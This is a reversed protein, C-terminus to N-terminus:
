ELLPAMSWHPQNHYVFLFSPPFHSCYFTCHSPAWWLGAPLFIFQKLSSLHLILQIGNICNSCLLPLTIRFSVWIHNQLPWKLHHNCHNRSWVKFRVFNNKQSQNNEIMLRSAKALNQVVYLLYLERLPKQATQSCLSIYIALFVHYPKLIPPFHM